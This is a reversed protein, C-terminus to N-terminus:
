GEVGSLTVNYWDNLISDRKEDETSRHKRPVITVNSECM